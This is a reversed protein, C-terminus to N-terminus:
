LRCLAGCRGDTSKRKRGFCRAPTSSHDATRAARRPQAANPPILADAPCVVEDAQFLAAAEPPFPLAAAAAGFLERCGTYGLLLARSVSPPPRCGQVGDPEAFLM